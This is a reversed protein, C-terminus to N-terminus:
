DKGHPTCALRGMLPTILVNTLSRVAVEISNGFLFIVNQCNEFNIGILMGAISGVFMENAAGVVAGGLFGASMGITMGVMMGEMCTFQTRHGRYHAIAATIAVSSVSAYLLFPFRSSFSPLDRLLLLYAFFGLFAIAVLGLISM